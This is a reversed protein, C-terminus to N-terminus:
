SIGLDLQDCNRLHSCMGDGDAAISEFVANEGFLHQAVLTGCPEGRAIAEDIMNKFAPSTRDLMSEENEPMIKRGRTTFQASSTCM